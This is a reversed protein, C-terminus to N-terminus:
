NPIVQQQVEVPEYEVHRSNGEDPAGQDVVASAISVSIINGNSNQDM